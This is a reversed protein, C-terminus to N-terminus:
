PYVLRYLVTGPTVNVSNTLPSVAGIVVTLSKMKIPINM